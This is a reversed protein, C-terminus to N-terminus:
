SVRRTQRWWGTLVAILAIVVSIGIIILLSRRAVPNDPPTPAAVTVEHFTSPHHSPELTLALYPDVAGRAPDVSSLIRMRIEEPSAHPHRQRILAATASVVPAAFSTGEFPSLGSPTLMGAVFGDGRPSLGATILGQASLLHQNVPISYSAITHPDFRASVALVTDAHAPYVTSGDPCDQGLNGAAVVVVVGMHEAHRLAEDLPTVVHEPAHGAPICSVVSINIINAGQDIARHIAEALSGLTGVGTDGSTRVFASTQKISLITADPAIGTHTDGTDDYPWGSGHDPRMAIIGAVITGHGDCDILEGPIGEELHGRVLDGGPIVAPLRPHPAVGTDIVAVTVDRGTAIKHAQELSRTLKEDQPHVAPDVPMVGPCDLPEVQGQATATPVAPGGPVGPAGVGLFVLFGVTLLSLLLRPLSM